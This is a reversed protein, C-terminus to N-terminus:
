FTLANIRNIWGNIHKAQAPNNRVINNVFRIRAAKIKDFLERPEYANIAALTQNGVIGDATVALIQQVQRAATKVGSNFAWDVCANAVSQNEIYDGKFPFWYGKKFIYFWQEDTINKLDNVTKNKGYYQRFTTLTIGKNTAGGKDTPSNVFGGEWKLIFPTLKSADAM